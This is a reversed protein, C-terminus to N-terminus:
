CGQVIHFAVGHLFEALAVSVLSKIDSIDVSKSSMAITNSGKAFLADSQDIDEFGDDVVPTRQTLTGTKLLTTASITNKDLLSRLFRTDQDTTLVVINTTFIGATDKLNIYVQIEKAYASFQYANIDFPLIKIGADLYMAFYLSNDAHIFFLNALIAVATKDSKKGNPTNLKEEFQIDPNSQVELSHTFLEDGIAVCHTGLDSYDNNLTYCPYDALCISPVAKGDIFWQRHTADFTAKFSPQYYGAAIKNM